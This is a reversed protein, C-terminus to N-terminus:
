GRRNRLGDAIAQALGDELGFRPRFSLQGTLRDMGAFLAPAEGRNLGPDGFELIPAPECYRAATEIFTRVSVPDGSGINVAGDIGSHLLAVFARAVDDVHVFDRLQTGASFRAPQQTEVARILTGLLRERRELPGYVNFVRGSAFSIGLVASARILVRYLSAKAEGYLTAPLIPTTAEDLRPVSWDYEACTGAIVVRKGGTAAFARVLRLSAELWDLNEIATWYHPPEAYWALHLLHSAGIARLTPRRDAGDLLDQRHWHIRADDGATRGLAHVEHGEDCLLPVVERGIFGTAGTVIIRMAKILRDRALPDRDRLPRGM